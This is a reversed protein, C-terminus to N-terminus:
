WAQCLSGAGTDTVSVGGDGAASCLMLMLMGM